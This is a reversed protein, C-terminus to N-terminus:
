VPPNLFDFDINSLESVYDVRVFVPDEARRQRDISLVRENFHVFWPGTYGAAKTWNEVEQREGGEIFIIKAEARFDGFGELVGCEHGEVDIKVFDPVVSLERCLDDFRRSAVRLESGGNEGPSVVRNVAREQYDTFRLEGERHSLAVNVCYVNRRANLRINEELLAFTAPHPEVSVVRVDGIESAILTYVGINAGVDVFTGGRASLVLRLFRMNNFDYEGM